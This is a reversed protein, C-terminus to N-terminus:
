RRRSSFTIRGLRERLWARQLTPLQRVFGALLVGSALWALAVAAFRWAPEVAIVLLAAACVVVEALAVLFLRRPWELSQGAMWRSARHLVVLAGALEAALLVGAIGRMGQRGDLWVIAAVTFGALSAATVLQVRLLNNGLVISDAPRAIAFVLMVISFLAFVVADFPVKDHTWLAFLGPAFAQLLVLAPGMLFVVVLWVFAFTGLIAGRNRDRLFGMFEPFVPDVVTAIGQLSLNSATRMTTFALAQAVGLVSSVLVRTGQQRVLGLLYTLGLQSSTRLNKWGLGWDPQGLRVQHRTGLRWLDGQYLAFILLNLAAVGAATALLGAGGWVLLASAFATALATGVGWWATRAFHGFAGAVRAYLGSAFVSLFTSTSLLMLSGGAEALLAPPLAGNPNFLTGTLGLWTLSGLTALEFLGLAISFPLAASLLAAIQQPDRGPTRLFENGVYNHHALSFINVFAAVAQIVLWCGYQEVSWHALFIPVLGIQTLATVGIRTWAALSGSLVRAAVGM